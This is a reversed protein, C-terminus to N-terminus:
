CQLAERGAAVVHVELGILPRFLPGDIRIAVIQAAQALDLRLVVRGVQEPHVAVDSGSAAALSVPTVSMTTSFGVSSYSAIRRDTHLLGTVFRAGRPRRRAPVPSASRQTQRCVLLTHRM